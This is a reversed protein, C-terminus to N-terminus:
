LQAQRVKVSNRIRNIQGQIYELQEKQSTKTLERHAEM